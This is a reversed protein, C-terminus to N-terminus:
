TDFLTSETRSIDFYARVSPAFFLIGACGLYSFALVIIFLGFLSQTLFPLGSLLFGTGGILLLSGFVWRAWNRGQYLMVCLFVTLAFRVSQMGLNQPGLMLNTFVITGLSIGICVIIVLLVLRRGRYIQPDMSM